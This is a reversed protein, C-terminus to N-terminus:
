GKFCVCMNLLLINQAAQYFTVHSHGGGPYGPGGSIVVKRLPIPIDSVRAVM